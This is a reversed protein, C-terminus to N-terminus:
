EFVLLVGDGAAMELTLSDAKVYSTEATQVVKVNCEKVFDLEIKQATKYSYNVVYLATKGQYNFCGIVADGSVTKLERWSTGEMLADRTDHADQISKEGTALIGKSVSNMLVEDIVDIHKNINQAYYYWRNKNGWTGILGNREFDYVGPESGYAFFYPQFLPFYVIGKAGFALNLNVMWDFEGENPYYSDSTFYKKDDNWQSGAQIFSWWPINYKEGYERYTALNYLYIDEEGKKDADFQYRDFLLNKPNQTECFETLYKEYDAKKEVDALSLLNQYSWMDLEKNLVQTIQTYNKMDRTGDSLGSASYDSTFPEDYVFLGAFAPHSSYAAMQASAEEATLDSNLNGIYGVVNSDQVSMAIGYKAALDLSKMVASPDDAYSTLPNTVLNVGCEAMMEFYEDTLYDPMSNGNISYISKLPMYYGAIPMVDDGGIIDFSQKAVTELKMDEITVAKEEGTCGSLTMVSMVMALMFSFGRKGKNKM